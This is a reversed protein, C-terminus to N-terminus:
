AGAGMHVVDSDDPELRPEGGYRRPNEYFRNGQEASFDHTCGRRVTCTDGPQPNIGGFSRYLTLAQNGGSLLSTMIERARNKLRGSTLKFLGVDFFNDAQGGTGSVVIDMGDASVVTGSYTVSAAPIGCEPSTFRNRCPFQYVKTSYESERGTPGEASIDVFGFSGRKVDTVDGWFILNMGDVLDARNFLFVRMEAADLLGDQVDAYTLPGAPDLMFEIDMSTPGSNVKIELSGRKLGPAPSWVHAGIEEDGIVDALRVVNGSVLDFQVATALNDVLVQDGTLLSTLGATYTIM